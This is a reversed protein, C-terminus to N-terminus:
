HIHPINLRSVSKRLTDRRAVVEACLTWHRATKHRRIDGKEVDTALTKHSHFNRAREVLSLAQEMAKTAGTIPGM